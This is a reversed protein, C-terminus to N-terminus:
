CAFSTVQESYKGQSFAHQSRHKSLVEELTLGDSLM